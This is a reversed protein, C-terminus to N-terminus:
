RGNTEEWGAHESVIYRPRNKTEEYIRGIYEGLVGVAFFVGSGIILQLLIVTTFGGVANGQVKVVVAYVGLVLAFVFFVVGILSAFRVPLNSFATLSTLALGTLRLFSWRSAGGIRDPVTFPVQARKFGLWAIMGRFFLNKEGMTLWASRVSSDILKFDSAANLDFGSLKHMLRYFMRRRVRVPLSEHEIDRKVGEVINVGEDRWIRVMEPILAPPHQLDADMIIIAEGRAADIGACLAAEKGFNRSLRLGRARPERRAFEAIVDWSDDPSGDDVIVLEYTERTRDLEEQITALAGQLLRGEKYVPLILSLTPPSPCTM